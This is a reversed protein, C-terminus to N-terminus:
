VLYYFMCKKNILTGLFTKGAMGYKYPYQEADYEAFGSSTSDAGRQTRELSSLPSPASIVIKRKLM